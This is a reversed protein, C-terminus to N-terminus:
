WARRDCRRLTVARQWSCWPDAQFPWARYAGSKSWRVRMPGSPEASPVEAEASVASRGLGTTEVTALKSGERLLSRRLPRHVM